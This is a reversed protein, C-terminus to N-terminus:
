TIFPVFKKYILGQQSEKDSWHAAALDWIWQNRDFTQPSNIHTLMRNAVAWSVCSSDDVFIPIGACAAAVSASSNFFVACYANKLNDTLRSQNPNVVEVGPKSLYKKFHKPDYAGPHPRVVIHKNTYKRLENIKHDLWIIPDIQKMAFGGDRQMCILIHGNINQQNPLLEVALDQSLRRWAQDSSAHNAYNAQDYFPGGISYRLYQSHNDLYKFCSADICMTHSGIRQQESIIQRRLVINPGGKSAPTAWGLIVALKSPQYRYTTEILVKAGVLKAGIAFSELCETKRPHRSANAVSSVYVVVDPIMSYEGLQAM